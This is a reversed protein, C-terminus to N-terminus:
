RFPVVRAPGVWVGAHMFEELRLDFPGRICDRHHKFALLQRESFQIRAGVPHGMLKAAEPHPRLDQDPNTHLSGQLGDLPEQSDQLGTATIDREVRLVGLFAQGEHHPIGPELDQKGLRM